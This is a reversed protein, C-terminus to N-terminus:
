AKEREKGDRIVRLYGPGNVVMKNVQMIHETSPVSESKDNVVHEAVDDPTGLGQRRTWSMINIFKVLHSGELMNCMSKLKKHIQPCTNYESISLEIM